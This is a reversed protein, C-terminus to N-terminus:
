KKIKEVIDLGEIRQINVGENHHQAHINTLCRRIQDFDYDNANHTSVYRLVMSSLKDLYEEVMNYHNALQFKYEGQTRSGIVVNDSKIYELEM